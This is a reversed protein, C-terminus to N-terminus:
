CWSYRFVYSYIRGDYDGDLNPWRLKCHHKKKFIAYNKILMRQRSFLRQTMTDIM